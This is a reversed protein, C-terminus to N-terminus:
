IQGRKPGQGFSKFSQDAAKKQEPTLAEYLNSFAPVLRQTDEAHAQALAAYSKMQDVANGEAVTQGHQQALGDMHRANERMVQAFASFQSEESATVKLKAHLEAVRREIMADRKSPSDAAAVPAPQAQALGPRVALSMALTAALLAPVAIRTM